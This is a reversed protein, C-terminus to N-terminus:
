AFNVHCHWRWHWVATPMATFAFKTRGAMLALFYTDEGWELKPDALMESDLLSTRCIWANQGIVNRMPLLNSFDQESLCYIERREEIVKGSPGQFQNAQVYHGPEDEQKMLGSYVLGYESGREFCEM